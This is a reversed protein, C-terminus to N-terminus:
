VTFTVCPIALHHSLLAHHKLCRESAMQHQTSPRVLVFPRLM